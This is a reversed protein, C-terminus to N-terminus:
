NRDHNKRPDRGNKNRRDSSRDSDLRSARGQNAVERILSSGLVQQAFEQQAGITGGLRHGVRFHHALRIRNAEERERGVHVEDLRHAERQCPPHQLQAQGASGAFGTSHGGKHQGLIDRSRTEPIEAFGIIAIPQFPSSPPIGGGRRTQDRQLNKQTIAANACDLREDTTGGRKIAAEIRPM